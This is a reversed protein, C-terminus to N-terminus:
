SQGQLDTEPAPAAPITGARVEEVAVYTCRVCMGTAPPGARLPATVLSSFFPSTENRVLATMLRIFLVSVFLADNFVRPCM